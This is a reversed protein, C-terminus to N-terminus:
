RPAATTATRQGMKVVMLRPRRGEEEAFSAIDTRIRDLGQDGEWEGAYVGSIRACPPRTAAMSAKWRRPSRAWRRARARRGRDVSGFPQRHQQARSRGLAKLASWASPRTRPEQSRTSGRSGAIERVVDNDIDLGRRHHRGHAPVQERGRDVEEGRDIRAQRRASAEEIRMKPM